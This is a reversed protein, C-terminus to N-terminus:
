TIIMGIERWMQETKEKQITSNKTIITKINNYDDPNELISAVKDINERSKKYDLLGEEFQYDKLLEEYKHSWSTCFAPVDQSLASVLGHFRSTICLKSQGIIWKVQDANLGTLYEFSNGSNNIIERILEEDEKGEHNLFYPKHGKEHLMFALSSLFNVYVDKANDETHTIMKKNPIICVRDHYKSFVEKEKEPLKPQYINTFDPYCAIKDNKGFVAELNKLSQKERAIVLNFFPFVEEIFKRSHDKKFPGFAQSLLIIKVGKQKLVKYFDVSQKIKEDTCSDEWQDGFRFGGADLILDIDKPAVFGYIKKTVFQPIYKIPILNQRQQIRLEYLNKHISGKPKFRCAIFDPKKKYFKAAREMVSYLMLEAGKNIFGANDVLINMIFTKVTTKQNTAM